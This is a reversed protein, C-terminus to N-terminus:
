KRDYEGGVGVNTLRFVELPRMFSYEKQRRYRKKVPPVKKYLKIESGHAAYSTYLYRRDFNGSCVICRLPIKEEDALAARHLGDILIPVNLIQSPPPERDGDLPIIRVLEESIEVYPPIM